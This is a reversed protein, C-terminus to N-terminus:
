KPPLLGSVNNVMKAHWAAALDTKVSGVETTASDLRLGVLVGYHDSLRDERRSAAFTAEAEAQLPKMPQRVRVFIHDVALHVNGDPNAGDYTCFPKSESLELASPGIGEVLQAYRVSGPSCNFDGAVMDAVQGDESGEVWRALQKIQRCRIRDAGSSEGAQLHVNWVNVRVGSALEITTKLAGKSVLSDPLRASHFPRFEGGVIPHCSMTILGTRHFPFQSRAAKAVWWGDATPVAGAATATWVEQLTVVDPHLLDLEGAIRNFRKSSAGNIWSPLGWVNFTVLKLEVRRAEALPADPKVSPLRVVLPRSAHSACGVTALLLFTAALAPVQRRLGSLSGKLEVLGIFDASMKLKEVLRRRWGSLFDGILCLLALFGGANHSLSMNTLIPMRSKTEHKSALPM